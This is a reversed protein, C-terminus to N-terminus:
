DEVQAEEVEETPTEEETQAALLVAVARVGKNFDDEEIINGEDDRHYLDNISAKFAELDFDEAVEDAVEEIATEEVPTEEVIDVEAEEDAESILKDGCECIEKGCKPCVKKEDWDDVWGEMFSNKGFGYM